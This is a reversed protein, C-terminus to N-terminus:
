WLHIRQKPPLYVPDSARVSFADYWADMNRVVGNVRPQPPSHTDSLVLFRLAETRVLTRRMQALSLFLRQEGTFGDLRPATGHHEQYNEYALYAAETGSLDAMNETLTQEGNIHLGPLVEIAAYQASVKAKNRDFAHRSADSWWNAKNGHSDYNAGEADFGHGIEHGITVGIAGYNVAPDAAPDFFPPILSGAPLLIQNAERVYFDNGGQAFGYQACPPLPVDLTAAEMARRKRESRIVNGFLDDEAISLDSLDVYLDPGGICATLAAVKTQAARRTADDMWAAHKILNAYSARVSEFLAQIQQKTQSDFYRHLYLQNVAEPMFGNVFRAGQVKRDRAASLGFLTRDFFDSHASDFASSLYAAHDSVFRFALYDKWTDLPVSAVIAAIARVTSGSQLRVDRADALGHAQFLATWSLQPMQANLASAPMATEAESDHGVQAQALRMELSVIAQAKTGPQTVGALHLINTVYGLYAKRDADYVAGRQVYYSLAMGLSGASVVVENHTHDSPSPAVNLDLPSAFGATGFVTALERLSSIRDISALYPRLPAGGLREIAAVDMWSAYFRAVTRQNVDPSTLFDPRDMLSAIRRDALANIAVSVGAVEQNAAFRAHKAWSGNAYTWFDAGPRVGPDISSTDLGFSGYTTSRSGADGAVAGTAVCLALLAAALRLACSGRLSCSMPTFLVDSFVEASLGHRRLSSDGVSM